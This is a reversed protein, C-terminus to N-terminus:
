QFHVRKSEKNCPLHGDKILRFESAGRPQAKRQAFSTTSFFLDVFLSGNLLAVESQWLVLSGGILYNTSQAETTSKRFDGGGELLVVFARVFWSVTRKL